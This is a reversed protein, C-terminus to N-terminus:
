YVGSETAIARFHGALAQPEFIQRGRLINRRQERYRESPFASAISQIVAQIEDTSDCLYGIDGMKNFYHAIFPNNLYIGPKGYSLADLFSASAILSYRQPADTIGVAYTISHARRTYEDLSLPHSSLGVIKKSCPQNTNETRSHGVLVFEVKKETVSIKDAISAFDKFGKGATGFYGFLIAQPDADNNSIDETNMFCPIDMPNFHSALYPDVAQLTEQISEGLAIYRLRTLHPLKLIRQFGFWQNRLRGLPNRSRHLIFALISHPIVIVPLSLLRLYMSLKIALLGPNTISTLVLLQAEKALRRVQCVWSLERWFGSPTLLAWHVYDPAPIKIPAHDLHDLYKGSYQHLYSQVWQWHGPECLFLVEAQPYALLITSLLASNFHAHEVDWCQPECVLIRM